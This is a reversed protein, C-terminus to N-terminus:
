TAAMEPVVARLFAVMSAAELVEADAPVRIGVPKGYEGILLLVNVGFVLDRQRSVKLELAFGSLRGKEDLLVSGKNVSGKLRLLDFATEIAKREEDPYAKRRTKELTKEVDFNADFRTFRAGNAKVPAGRRVSGALAGAALDVLVVPNIANLVATPADDPVRLAGSGEELDDLRLRLWPRADRDSAALRHGYLDLSDFVVAANGARTLSARRRRFDIAAEYSVPPGMLTGARPPGGVVAAGEAVRGIDPTQLISAGVTLVGHATGARIALDVADVIADARHQKDGLGCGGTLVALCTAVLFALGFPRRPALPALPGVDRLLGPRRPARGPLSFPRSRM